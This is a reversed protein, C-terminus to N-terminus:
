LAEWAQYLQNGYGSAADADSDVLLKGNIAIGYMVTNFNTCVVEIKTITTGLGEADLEARTLTFRGGPAWTPLEITRFTHSTSTDHITVDCTREIWLDIQDVNNLTYTFTIVESTAATVVGRTAVNGNFVNLSMTPSDLWDTAPTLYPSWIDSTDYEMAFPQQGFNYTNGRGISTFTSGGEHTAPSGDIEYYYTTGVEGTYTINTNGAVDVLNGNKGSELVAYDKVPTDLVTDQTNGTLVFNEDQFHNDQGSADNGIASYDILMVGNVKIYYIRVSGGSQGQLTFSSVDSTVTFTDIGEEFSAVGPIGTVTINNGTIAVLPKVKPQIVM